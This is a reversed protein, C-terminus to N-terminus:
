LADDLLSHEVYREGDWRWLSTTSWEHGGASVLLEDIGDGDLDIVAALELDWSLLSWAELPRPISSASSGM